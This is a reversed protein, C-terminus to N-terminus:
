IADAGNEPTTPAPAPTAQVPKMGDFALRSMLEDNLVLALPIADINFGTADESIPRLGVITAVPKGEFTTNLLGLVSTHETIIHFADQEDQTFTDAM